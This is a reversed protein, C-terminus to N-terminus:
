FQDSEPPPHREDDEDDNLFKLVVTAPLFALGMIGRFPSFPRMSAFIESISMEDRRLTIKLMFGIGCWAVIIHFILLVHYFFAPGGMPMTFPLPHSKVFDMIFGGYLPSLSSLAGLFTWHMAISLARGERPSLAAILHMQCLGVGAYLGGAIFQSFLLALMAKPLVFHGMLPLSLTADGLPLFFWPVMFLPGAFMLIACMTRAGIRQAILGLPVGTVFAGAAGTCVMVAVQTYSMGLNSKMAVPVFAGIMAVSFYWFGMAYTLRRFDLLNWAIRLRKLIGARRDVSKPRPEPVLMHCLIDMCGLTAAFAFVIMFGAFSGNPKSPDPFSDLVWGSGWIVIGQVLTTLSQRIGWYRASINSPVLEAMWAFWLPTVFQATLSSMVVMAVVAWAAKHLEGPFIFPIFIPIFWLARHLVGISAWYLKRSPLTEGYVAGPIQVMIALQQVTTLLGLQFGSAGLANMFLILPMGLAVAVWAFGMMGAATSIYLGRLALKGTFEKEDYTRFIDKFMPPCDNRHICLNLTLLSPINGGLGSLYFLSCWLPLLWGM